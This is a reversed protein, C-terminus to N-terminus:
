DFLNPRRRKRPLDKIKPYGSLNLLGRPVIFDGNKSKDSIGTLLGLSAKRPSHFFWKLFYKGLFRVVKNFNHIIGTNVLGPEVCVYDLSPYKHEKSIKYFYAELYAKSLNYQDFTSLNPDKLDHRKKFHLGAAFSGAIVFKVKHNPKPSIKDIFYRNGIYNIGITGPYGNDVVKSVGLVGANLVITTFDKHKSLLEEIAKDISDNSSQDYYITDVLNYQEKLVPLLDKEIGLLIVPVHLNTLHKLLELGIGSTGGILVVKKNEFSGLKSIYKNINM